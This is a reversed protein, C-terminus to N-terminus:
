GVRKHLQEIVHPVRWVPALEDAGHGVGALRVGTQSAPAILRRKGALHKGLGAVDGPDDPERAINVRAAALDLRERKQEVVVTGAHEADISELVLKEFFDDLVPLRYDANLM